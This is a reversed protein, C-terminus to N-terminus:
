LGDIIEETFYEDLWDNAFKQVYGRQEFGLDNLSKLYDNKIMITLKAIDEFDINSFPTTYDSVCVAIKLDDYDYQRSYIDNEM